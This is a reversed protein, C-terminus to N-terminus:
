ERRGRKWDWRGKYKNAYVHTAEITEDVPFWDACCVLEHCKM